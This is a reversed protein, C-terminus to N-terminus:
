AEAAIIEGHRQKDQKEKKREMDYMTKEINQLQKKTEQQENQM